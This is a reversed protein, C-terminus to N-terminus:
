FVRRERDKDVNFDIKIKGKLGLLSKRKFSRVLEELALILTETQNLQTLGTAESLLRDPLITSIKKKKNKM